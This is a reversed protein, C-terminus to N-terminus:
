VINPYHLHQSWLRRLPRQTKRFSQLMKRVAHLVDATVDEEPQDADIWSWDNDRMGEFASLVEKQFEAREYRENGWGARAAQVDPSVELFVVADPAPLNTDPAYTWERPGINKALTYAVGSYAYRDAIVTTGAALLENIKKANEWRNASFLLHVARDDLEAGDEGALHRAIVGGIATTRDPFVMREVPVGADQLFKVANLCQTSKGARDLGEFVIFAGRLPKQASESAM